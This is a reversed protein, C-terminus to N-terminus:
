GTPVLVKGGSRVKIGSKFVDIGNLIDIAEDLGYAIHYLGGADNVNEGFQKQNANQWGVETKLELAHFEKRVVLMLDSVGARLGMKKYRAATAYSRWGENLVAWWCVDPRAYLSLLTAVYQQIATEKMQTPKRPM